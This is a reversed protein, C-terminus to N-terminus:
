CQLVHLNCPILLLKGAQWGARLPCAVALLLSRALVLLLPFECLSFAYNGDCELIQLIKKNKLGSFDLDDEEDASSTTSYQPVSQGLGSDNAHEITQEITQESTHETAITTTAPVNVIGTALSLARADERQLVPGTYNAQCFLSFHAYGLLLVQLARWGAGGEAAGEEEESNGGAIFGFVLKRISEPVELTSQYSNCVKCLLDFSPLPPTQKSSTSTILSVYQGQLLSLAMAVTQEQLGTLRDHKLMIKIARVDKRLFSLELQQLLTLSLEAATIIPEQVEDDECVIIPGNMGFLCFDEDSDSNDDSM